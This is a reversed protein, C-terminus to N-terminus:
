PHQVDSDTLKVRERPGDRSARAAQAPSQPPATVAPGPPRASAQAARAAATAKWDIESMPVSLLTGDSRTLLAVNGRQVVPKQLNIKTGGKLVVVDAAAFLSAGAAFLLAPLLTRRFHTM